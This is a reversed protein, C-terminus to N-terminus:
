LPRGGGNSWPSGGPCHREGDGETEYRFLPRTGAIKERGIYITYEDTTLAVANAFESEDIRATVESPTSPLDDGGPPSVTVPPEPPTM